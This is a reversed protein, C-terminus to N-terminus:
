VQKNLSVPFLVKRSLNIKFAITVRLTRDSNYFAQHSGTAHDLIFGCKRIAKIAEKPKIVPLKPM